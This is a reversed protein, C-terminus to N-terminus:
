HTNSFKIGALFEFSSNKVTLYDTEYSNTLSPSYRIEVLFYKTGCCLEYGLGFTGGLDISKFDDYVIDFNYSDYGLLIDIRPGILIYPSSNKLKYALKGLIPLSLYDVRNNDEFKAICNGNEDTWVEELIMGKQIYHSEILLNFNSYNFLELFGGISLGYRNQTDWSSSAEPVFDQDAICLGVKLGYSNILQANLFTFGFILCALLIVKKM